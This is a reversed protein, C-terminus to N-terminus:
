PRSCGSCATTRPSPRWAPRWPGRERGRGRGWARALTSTFTSFFTSFASFFSSEVNSEEHIVLQVLHDAQSDRGIPHRITGARRDTRFMRAVGIAACARPRPPKTACRRGPPQFGSGEFHTPCAGYFRERDSPRLAPIAHRGNGPDQMAIGGFSLVPFGAVELDWPLSADGDGRLLSRRASPRGPVRTPGRRPSRRPGPPSRNGRGMARREEHLVAALRQEMLHRQEADERDARRDHDDGPPDVERDARHDRERRDDAGLQHGVPQSGPRGRRHGGGRPHDGSAITRVRSMPRPIPNRCAKRILWSRSGGKM